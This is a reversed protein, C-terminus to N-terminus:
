NTGYAVFTSNAANPGNLVCTRDVAGAAVAKPTISYGAPLTGGDLLAEVDDCDLVSLSGAPPPTMQRASKNTASASSLNAAIGDAAGKAASGKFDVFQPLATVALIGLIVIVIILEVLTFGRAGRSGHRSAPRPLTAFKSM